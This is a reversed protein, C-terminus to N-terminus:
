RGLGGSEFITAIPLFLAIVITGVVLALLVIMVPELASTLAGVLADVEEEYADAVRDCMEGLRGTEEGVAIMGPVFAPFVGTQELPRALSDGDKVRDHVADLAGQVVTHAVVERAIRLAELLPVGSEVLTGFTRTFHAVATRQVLGQFLPLTFTIRDWRRRGAATSMAWRLGVGLAVVGGLLLPFFAEVFASLGILAQTLAPLPQGRLSTAYITQFQPIVFAMLLGVITVAVLLVVAPYVLAAQVRGKLRGSKERFDAVRGLVEALHGSAEGARVMNLFFPDFVGPYSALAQSFRRGGRVSEALDEVVERFPGPPTQRLLTELGRLLPLQAGLLTALQRTFVTVTRQRRAIRRVRRSARRAYRM